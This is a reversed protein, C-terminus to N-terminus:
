LVKCQSHTPGRNISGDNAYTMTSQEDSSVVEKVIESLAVVEICKGISRANNKDPLTDVNIEAGEDHRSIEM